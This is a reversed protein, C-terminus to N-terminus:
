VIQFRAQPVQLANLLHFSVIQSHVQPVQQVNFRQRLLLLLIEVRTVLGKVRLLAQGLIPVRVAVQIARVAAVVAAAAQTVMVVEMAVMVEAEVVTVAEMVEEEATVAAEVQVEM